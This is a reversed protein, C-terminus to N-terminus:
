SGTWNLFIRKWIKTQIKRLARADDTKSKFFIAMQEELQVKVIELEEKGVQFASIAKKFLKHM